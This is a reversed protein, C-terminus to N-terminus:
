KSELVLTQWNAIHKRGGRNEGSGFRQSLVTRGGDRSVSLVTVYIDDGIWIGEHVKRSLVLM